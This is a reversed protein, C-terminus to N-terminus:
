TQLAIPLCWKYFSPHTLQQTKGAALYTQYTLKQMNRICDTENKQYIPTLLHQCIQVLIFVGCM